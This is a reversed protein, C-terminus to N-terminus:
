LVFERLRKQELQVHQMHLWLVRFIFSSQQQVRGGVRSNYFVLIVMNVFQYTAGGSRFSSLTYGVDELKLSNCVALLRRSWSHRSMCVLFDNPRM